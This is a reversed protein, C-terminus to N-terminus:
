RTGQAQEHSLAPSPGDAPARRGGPILRLVASVPAAVPAQVPTSDPTEVPTEGVRQAPATPAGGVTSESHARLLATPTMGLATAAADVRLGVRTVPKGDIRMGLKDVTPLGCTEVWARFEALETGAPVHGAATASDLLVDLHVGARKSFEADSLDRIVHWLLETGRDTEDQVDDQEQGQVVDQVYDEVHKATSPAAVMWAAVMWVLGGGTIILYHYSETRAWWQGAAPSLLRWAAGLAGAALAGGLGLVGLAELAPRRVPAVPPATVESLDDEVDDDQDDDKKRRAKLEKQRAATDAKAQRTATAEPDTSAADWALRIGHVACNCLKGTLVMSGNVLATLATGIGTM